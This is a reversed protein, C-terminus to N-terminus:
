SLSVVPGMQVPAVKRNILHNGFIQFDRLPVGVEV